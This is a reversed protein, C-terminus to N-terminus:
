NLRGGSIICKTNDETPTPIPVVIPALVDSDRSASASERSKALIERCDNVDHDLPVVLHENGFPM